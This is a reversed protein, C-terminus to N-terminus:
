QGLINLYSLTRVIMKGDVFTELHDDFGGLRSVSVARPRQSASPLGSSLRAKMCALFELKACYWHLEGDLLQASINLSRMTENM